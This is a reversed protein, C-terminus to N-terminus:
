LAHLEPHGMWAPGSKQLLLAHGALHPQVVHQMDGLLPVFVREEAQQWPETLTCAAAWMTGRCGLRM